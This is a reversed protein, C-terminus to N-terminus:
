KPGCLQQQKVFTRIEELATSKDYLYGNKGGLQESHCTRFDYNAPKSDPAGDLHIRADIIEGGAIRVWREEGIGREVQWEPM